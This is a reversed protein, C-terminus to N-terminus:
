GNSNESENQVVREFDIEDIRQKLELLKREASDQDLGTSETQVATQMKRNAFKTQGLKMLVQNLNQM